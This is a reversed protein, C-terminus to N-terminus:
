LFNLIALVCEICSISDGTTQFQILIIIMLMLMFGEVDLWRALRM